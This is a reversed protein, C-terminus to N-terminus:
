SGLVAFLKINLLRREIPLDPNVISLLESCPVINKTHIFSILLQTNTPEINNGVRVHRTVTAILHPYMFCYIWILM